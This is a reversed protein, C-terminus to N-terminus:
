SYFRVTLTDNGYYPYPAPSYFKYPNEDIWGSPQFNISVSKEDTTTFSITFNPPSKANMIPDMTTLFNQATISIDNVKLNSVNPYNTKSRSVYNITIDVKYQTQTQGDDVFLNMRGNINSFIHTEGPLLDLIFTASNSDSSVLRVIYTRQEENHVLVANPPDEAFSNLGSNLIGFLSVFQEFTINDTQRFPRDSFKIISETNYKTITLTGGTVNRDFTANNFVASFLFSPFLSKINDSRIAQADLRNVQLKDVAKSFLIRSSAM